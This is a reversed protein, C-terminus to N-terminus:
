TIIVALRDPCYVPYSDFYFLNNQTNQKKEDKKRSVEFDPTISVILLVM